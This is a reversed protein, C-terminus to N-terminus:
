GLPGHPSVWDVCLLEGVHLLEASLGVPHQLFVGQVGVQGLDSMSTAALIANRARRTREPLPAADADTFSDHLRLIQVPL